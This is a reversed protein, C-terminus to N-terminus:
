VTGFREVHVPVRCVTYEPDVVCIVDDVDVFTVRRELVILDMDDTRHVLRAREVVLCLFVDDVIDRLHLVFRAPDRIM